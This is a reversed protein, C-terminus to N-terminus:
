EHRGNESGGDVRETPFGADTKRVLVWGTIGAWGEVGPQELAKHAFADGQWGRELNAAIWWAQEDLALGAVSRQERVNEAGIIRGNDLGERAGGGGTGARNDSRGILGEEGSRSCEAVVPLEIILLLNSAHCACWIRRFPDRNAAVVHLYRNPAYKEINMQRLAVIREGMAIREIGAGRR